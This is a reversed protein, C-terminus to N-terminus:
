LKSSWAPRAAQNVSRKRALRTDRRGHQLRQRCAAKKAKRCLVEAVPLVLLAAGRLRLQFYKRLCRRSRRPLDALLRCNESDRDARDQSPSRDPEQSAM